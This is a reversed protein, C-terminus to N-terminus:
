RIPLYKVYIRYLLDPGRELYTQAFLLQRNVGADDPALKKAEKFKEAAKGPDAHQLDRVGLNYYCDIIM